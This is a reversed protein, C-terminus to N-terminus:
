GGAQKIVARAQRALSQAVDDGGAASEPICELYECCARLAELLSPSTAILRANDDDEDSNMTMSLWAIVDNDNHLEYRNSMVGFRTTKWPGKTHM